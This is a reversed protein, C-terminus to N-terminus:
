PTPQTCPSGSVTNVFGSGGGAVNNTATAQPVNVLTNRGTLYTVVAADDNNAGGYGPLRVTTIFRQRVRLDGGAGLSGGLSHTVTNRLAATGGGIDACLISNDGSPSAVAVQAMIARSANLTGDIKVDINNGTM